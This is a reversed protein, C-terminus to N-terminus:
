PAPTERRDGNHKSKTVNANGNQTEAASKTRVGTLWPFFRRRQATVGRALAARIADEAEGTLKRGDRDTLEFVDLAIDDETHVRAAHVSAGSAAFAATIAHLLGARDPARVTAITHWPSGHDDFTVQADPAPTTSLPQKLEDELAAQVADTSPRARSRVRFSSLACGDPWTAILADRVDLGARSLVLTSRALLGVRDRAVVTVSWEGDTAASVVSARAEDRGPPPECQTAHHVIEDPTAAIVYARPAAAIRDRVMASTTLRAAQARRQEVTNAVDRGTLEPHALADQLLAALEALREREWRDLSDAALSLLCLARAQDASGIHVALQLVAEETPGDIRRAAAPLLGIDAVLGAIAQEADAGLGIRQVIRRAAGVAGAEGDTADLIVAALLLWEPHALETREELELARSLRPWRLAGTPDLGFADSQRRAMVAALEPLARDLVGTVVLFRWSRPTGHELLDFLADRGARDWRLPVDPLRSLWDLLSSGPRAHSCEVSARLAIVLAADVPPQAALEVTGGGPGPRVELWGKPPEPEPAGLASPRARMRMLRWRLAPPPVLTTALVVLLLAAYVDQGFVHQRLGLTAFILGVEGRPIMGIGVLVRDGSSRGLGFASVLKGVVAVGFLAAAIGIVKAHAFQGIDADIGIQLFFVPIFLHGVPTLERRIRDAAPSRGLSVGAVFAGVIPALKAASALESIGLTFALAVAVLTGASRSARAVLEFLTPAIRVGITSTVVLFAVALGVVGAVTLVSVTGEAVVRVVVTLIVLGMVDDAVAAGLVTRAEISGLARLDGFVRATIGVSTATLAAGVFLAEKGTMGLLTGAGYGGAFPVIVGITAVALSARGVAGLEAIDMELGVDLLLLIVGLEALVRLVDEGQVFGFVSPGIVIGALIEGVVPPVGVREAVEAAAKAALLVVLIDLLVQTVTM